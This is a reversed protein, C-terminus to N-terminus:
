CKRNCSFGHFVCRRFVKVGRKAVYIIKRGMYGIKNINREGKNRALFKEPKM